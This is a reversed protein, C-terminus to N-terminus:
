AAPGPAMAWAKRMLDDLLSPTSAERWGWRVIWYGLQRIQEERRKEAMIANAPSRGRLLGEQYKIRGDCEGVLRLDPWAFDTRAIFESDDWIEFQLQPAPYGLRRLQVRSLSEAPSESRGDAFHAAGRAQSIGRRSSAGNLAEALEIPDMGKHLAADLMIVAWEHPLTRGLDVATRALNTAQLGELITIEAEVIGANRLFLESTRRGHSPGCKTVNVKALEDSYLPLGHLAAATMHSFVTGPLLLPASARARRIHSAREDLTAPASYVGRRIRTLERSDVMRRLDSSNLGELQLEATTM